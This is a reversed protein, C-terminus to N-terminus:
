DDENKKVARRRDPLAADVILVVPMIMVTTIAILGLLRPPTNGLIVLFSIAISAAIFFGLM